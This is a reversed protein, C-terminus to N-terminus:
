MLMTVGGWTRQLIRKRQQSELCSLAEEQRCEDQALKDIRMNDVRCM